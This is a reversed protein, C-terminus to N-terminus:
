KPFLEDQMDYAIDYGEWNDVGAAELCSLWDSREQLKINETNLQENLAKQENYQEMFYFMSLKNVEVMEAITPDGGTKKVADALTTGNLVTVGRLELLKIYQIKNM